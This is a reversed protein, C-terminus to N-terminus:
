SIWEEHWLAFSLLYWVKNTSAKGRDLLMKNLYKNDFYATNKSFSKLKKETFDGLERLFWEQMPIGFGQKKRDILEDPITGRVAKKLIYKLDNNKTKVSQPISMALEVFKHDLFPARAELSAAMSMKDVRMLLLEPLTLNLDMYSMWSLPTKEWAKENFRDFVPKVAEYSTYNKFDKRYDDSLLAKKSNDFFAEVGGWFIPKGENARKLLEYYSLEEMGAIKLGALVAKKFFNNDYKKNLEYLMLIERWHPYGMFLEDSGEGVQCVSVGKDKALKSVAYVPYCIYDAMPEDRHFIDTQLFDLFDKQKLIKIHHDANVKEAMMQAYGFENAYSKNEGEYGITFTKVKEVSDEAFLAANTSSDIGGSLFVGVPVDSVKRYKVSVRLEELIKEAIEDESIDTLPKTHDFVDWYRTIKIDGQSSLKLCCGSALKYINKFMTDPAPVTLFSLFNYFGEMNVERKISPDKLIAKIESAFIFRGNSVTYYLPKLGIRDRAVWLEKNISDWIAFAFMGRFKDICGIGWEEFAHIIVETDSHNTKFKHGAKELEPRIEAHNYIEGNFVIWLSNDENSMPQSASKSIDIISLRRHGLGTFGDPSIRLGCDDPGRHIMTDRMTILLNEKVTEKKEYNIIGVIGCM